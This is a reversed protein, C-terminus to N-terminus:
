ANAPDIALVVEYSEVAGDADGIAELGVGLNLHAKAYGPAARVAGRYRKCAEHLDGAAEARDGEAILRDAEGEASSVAGADLTPVRGFFASRSLLKRLM